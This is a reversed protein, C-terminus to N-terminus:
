SFRQRANGAGSDEDFGTATPSEGGTTGDSNKVGTTGRGSDPDDGSENVDSENVIEGSAPGQVDPGPNTGVGSDQATAVPDPMPGTMPESEFAPGAQASAVRTSGVWVGLFVALFLVVKFVWWLGGGLQSRAAHSEARHSPRVVALARFLRWGRLLADDSKGTCLLLM